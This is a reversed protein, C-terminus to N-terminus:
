IICTKRRNKYIIYHNRLTTYIQYLDISSHLAPFPRLEDKDQPLPININTPSYGYKNDIYGLYKAESAASIYKDARLKIGYM